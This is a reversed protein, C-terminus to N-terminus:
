TQSPRSKETAHFQKQINNKNNHSGYIRQNKESLDQIYSLSICLFIQYNSYKFVWHSSPLTM